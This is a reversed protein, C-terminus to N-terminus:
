RRDWMAATYHRMDEALQGLQRTMEHADAHGWKGHGPLFELVARPGNWGCDFYNEPKGTRLRFYSNQQLLKSYGTNRAYEVSWRWSRNAGLQATTTRLHNRRLEPTRLSHDTYLFV